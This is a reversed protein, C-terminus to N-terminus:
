RGLEGFILSSLLREVPAYNDTLVPLAAYGTGTRALFESVELWERNIGFRSQYHREPLEAGGAVVVYTLRAAQAPWSELWVQVRPFVQELTKVISKVLRPDPHADVANLVYLGDQTLRSRVLRAYEETVLHYPIAIDHFVDGVIVDYYGERERALVRRADSHVVRDGEGQYYLRQRAVETVAPDLEAIVIEAQPYRTRLARPQTYAGGGAFFSRLPRQITQAQLTIFEDMLQVYPSLLVAPYERHNIGHMLHDLVMGRVEGFPVQDSLDIVQICFYNTERDCFKALGNRQATVGMLLAAAVCLSALSKWARGLFWLALVALLAAIGLIVAQTGLYQILVYGTVFTGAISGFAALAHMMGVIHGTRTDLRLALTILLPTVVGLLVSPLLFLLAVFIFSVSLLGLESNQLWPAVLTLLLLVAICSLAGAGLMWGLAFERAGRDAWMGGLWNGLSIGGLIVGIIATWSYLSVGIYPALLRAAALELAMLGASSFFIALAYAWLQGRRAQLSSSSAM